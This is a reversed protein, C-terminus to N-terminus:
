LSVPILFLLDWTLFSAPWDLFVKLAVYYFIDWVAFVYLFYSFRQLFNKGAVWAITIIMVVTAIERVWEIEILRQSFMTLPFNFGNPYYLARLYVVVIAELFGMAIAFIGLLILTTRTKLSLFKM